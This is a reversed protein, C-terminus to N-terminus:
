TLRSAHQGLLLPAHDPPFAELWVWDPRGTLWSAQGRKSRYKELTPQIVQWIASFGAARMLELVLLIALGAAGGCIASHSLLYAGTGIYARSYGMRRTELLEPLNCLSTAVLGIVICISIVAM